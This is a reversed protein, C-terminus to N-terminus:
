HLITDWSPVPGGHKGPPEICGAWAAALKAVIPPLASILRELWEGLKGAIEDEPSV